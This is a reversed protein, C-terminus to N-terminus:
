ILGLFHLINKIAGDSYLIVIGGAYDSTPAGTANRFSNIFYANGGKQAPIILSYGAADIVSLEEISRIIELITNSLEQLSAVRDELLEIFKVMSESSSAIGSLMGVAITNLYNLADTYFPFLGSIRLTGWDPPNGVFTGAMESGRSFGLATNGEIIEIKSNQYVDIDLADELVIKNDKNVYVRIGRVQERIESAVKESTMTIGEDPIDRGLTINQIASIKHTEDVVNVLTIGAKVKLTNTNSKILYPGSKSSTISAKTTELSDKTQYKATISKKPINNPYITIVGTSGDIDKVKIVAGDVTVEVAQASDTPLLTNSDYIPGSLLYTLPQGSSDLETIQPSLDDIIEKLNPAIPTSLVESSEAVSINNDADSFVSVVKYYYTKGNEIDSDTGDLTYLYNFSYNYYEADGGTSILDSIVGFRAIESSTLRGDIFKFDLYLTDALLIEGIKTYAGVAEGTNKDIVNEEINTASQGTKTVLAKVRKTEPKGGSVESRYIEYKTPRLGSNLTWTLINRKNQGFANLNKPPQLAYNLEAKSVFKLLSNISNFFRALGQGSDVAIILGGVIANNSFQPRKPDNLDDFSAEIKDLFGSFGGEFFSLIDKDRIDSLTPITSLIYVGLGQNFDNLMALIDDILQSLLQRLALIGASSFDILFAKAIGLADGVLTLVESIGSFAAELFQLNRTLEESGIIYKESPVWALGSVPPDEQILSPDNFTVKIKAADSLGGYIDVTVAEFESEGSSLDLLTSIWKAGTIFVDAGNVQVDIGEPDFTGGIDVTNINTVYSNQNVTPPDLKYNIELLVPTALGYFYDVNYVRLGTLSNLLKASFDWEGVSLNLITKGIEQKSIDFMQLNKRFLLRKKALIAVTNGTILFACTFGAITNIQNIVAQTTYPTNIDFTYKIDTGDINWDINRDDEPVFVTNPITIEAGLYYEGVNFGLIANATGSLIKLYRGFIILINDEISVVNKFFYSNIEDAIEQLPRLGETLIINNEENDVILNLTKNGPTILHETAGYNAPLRIYTIEKTAYIIDLVNPDCIGHSSYSLSNLTISPRDTNKYIAVKDGNKWLNTFPTTTFNSANVETIEQLEGLNDGSIALAMDGGVIGDVRFDGSAHHFVISSETLYSYTNDTLKKNKGPTLIIPKTLEYNLSILFPITYSYLPTLVTIYLDTNTAYISFYFEWDPNGQIFNTYGVYIPETIGLEFIPKKIFINNQASLILSGEFAVNRGVTTNILTIVDLVTYSLNKDFIIQYDIGDINLELVSRGVFTIPESINLEVSLKYTDESFGLLSNASGANIKIHKGFLQIKGLADQAVDKPFYANIQSALMAASSNGFNLNISQLIGDIEINLINNGPTVLFNQSNFSTVKTTDLTISNRYIVGLASSSATGKILNTIKSIKGSAPELLVPEPLTYNIETSASDTVQDFTDVASIEFTTTESVVVFEYAWEIGSLVYGSTFLGGSPSINLSTTEFDTLGSITTTLSSIPDTHPYIEPPNLKYNLNYISLNTANTLNDEAYMEVTASPETFNFNLIEFNESGILHSIGSSSFGSGSLVISSTLNPSVKGSVNQTISNTTLASTIQPGEFEFTVQTTPSPVNFFDKSVINLETPLYSLINFTYYWTNNAPTYVVGSSSGNIEVIVSSVDAIGSVTIPNISTDWSLINTLPYTVQPANM